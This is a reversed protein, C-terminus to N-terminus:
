LTLGNKTEQPVEMSIEMTTVSTQMGLPTKVTGRGGDKGANTTPKRNRTKTTSPDLQSGGSYSPNYAHVVQGRNNTKKIIVTTIPTLHFRLV